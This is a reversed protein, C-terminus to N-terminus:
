MSTPITFETRLRQTIKQSKLLLRGYRRLASDPPRLTTAYINSDHFRYVAAPFPISQLPFGMKEMCSPVYAHVVYRRVFYNEGTERNLDLDTEPYPAKQPNLIFSSGCEHYFNKRKFLYGPLQADNRYGANIFYGNPNQQNLCYAVLKSSVLDDADLVMFYHSNDRRSEKIGALIKRGKDTRQIFIPERNPETELPYVIPLNVKIFECKRRDFNIDPIEHCIILVRFRQDTQNCASRLTDELLGCAKEWQSTTCKALFPVLFNFM